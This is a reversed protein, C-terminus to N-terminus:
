AAKPKRGRKKKELPETLVSVNDQNNDSPDTIVMKIADCEDVSQDSITQNKLNNVTTLPVNDEKVTNLLQQKKTEDFPATDDFKIDHNIQSIFLQMKTTFRKFYKTHLKHFFEIYTIFLRMKERVMMNNFEYTNVFNDLNLGIDNRQKHQKLEVDKGDLYNNISLLLSVITDHLDIIIEFDYEKYPELDKYIPYSSKHQSTVRKDNISENVYDIIIKYLKFYECYMRNTIVNYIKKMDAYEM